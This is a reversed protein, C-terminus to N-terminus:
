SAKEVGFRETLVVLMADTYAHTHAFVSLGLIAVCVVQLQFLNLYKSTFGPNLCILTGLAIGLIFLLWGLLSRSLYNKQVQERIDKNVKKMQIFIHRLLLHRVILMVVLWVLAVISWAWNKESMVVQWYNM